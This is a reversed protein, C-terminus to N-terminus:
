GAAKIKKIISTVNSKSTIEVETFEALDALLDSWLEYDDPNFDHQKAISAIAKEQASTIDDDSFPLDGDEDDSDDSDDSEEESEEEDSEEEIEEDDAFPELDDISVTETTGDEFKVKAEDDKISIIKGEYYDGDFDVQCRDGKSWEVEESEEGDEDEIEELGDVDVEDDDLASRWYCNIWPTGDDREGRHKVAVEAFTGELEECIGPIDTMSEPVDQGLKVIDRKYYSISQEDEIGDNKFLKRGKYEGGCIVLEYSVQLRGAGSQSRNVTAKDIKVQYTGEPVTEFSDSAADTSQYQDNLEELAAMVDNSQGSTKRATKRTTKKTSRKAM